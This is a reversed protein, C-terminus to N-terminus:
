DQPQFITLNSELNSNDNKASLELRQVKLLSLSNEIEYLFKIHGEMDGEARLDVVVGKGLNSSGESQPRLDIIRIGTKVALEEL